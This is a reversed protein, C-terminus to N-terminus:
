RSKSYYDRIATVIKKMQAESLEPYMPLSLVEGQAHESEPFDGMKHGLPKYVEQLHLSLPYYIATAIGKSSLYERLGDRDIGRNRLRITYYNFSHRTRPATCPLQVDAMDRFLQSYFEAIHRRQEIWEDLHGLKVRLIAAQITDLRSNFGIRHHFDREKSGHDRLIRINEATEPNNTPVMGADGYAGLGKSPYFSLCGADGLSGVKSGRYEAGLAQACDEIVKLRYRKALEVIPEMDVPQGFLHVLLIAKTRGDIKSEIERYNINYNTPDIDVFVPTADCRSIVEATAFFTFPTTIVADGPGVGCALLALHLADTGSAVGIAYKVGCYCAIEEELAKVEPGLIFDGSKIVRQVSSDIEEKISAYQAKLDVLPINM